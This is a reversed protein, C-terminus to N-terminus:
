KSSNNPSAIILQKLTNIKLLEENLNARLDSLEDEEVLSDVISPNDEVIEALHTRLQETTELLMITQVSMPVIDRLKGIIAHRFFNDMRFKLEDIKDELTLYSENINKIIEENNEVINNKDPVKTKDTHNVGNNNKTDTNDPKKHIEKNYITTNQTSDISNNNKSNINPDEKENVDNEVRIVTDYAIPNTEKDLDFFEKIKKDENPDNNNIYGLKKMKNRTRLYIYEEVAIHYKLDNTFPYRMIDINRMLLTKCENAKEKIFNNVFQSMTVLHVPYSKFVVELTDYSLKCLLMEAENLFEHIPTRLKEIQPILLDLFSHTSINGKFADGFLKQIRESIYSNDYNDSVKFDAHSEALLFTDYMTIIKYGGETFNKDTEPTYRGHTLSDFVTCFKNVMKNIMLKKYKKDNPIGPGIRKLEDEIGHSKNNLNNLINPINKKIEHYFTKSLKGLLHPTGCHDPMKSYVSHNEFYEKERKFSEQISINEVRLEKQTRNRVAMFGLNLKVQQGLLAEKASTGENMLDLKTLVGLTRKGMPDIKKVYRLIESTTIDVGSALVCLIITEPKECYRKTIGWTIQDIDEPQDSGELPNNVIGPLDIVTLDPCLPSFVSVVIPRNVINKKTGAKIDTQELIISKLKEFDDVRYDEEKTDSAKSIVKIVAYQEKKTTSLRLEIPTRTCLGDSRPLIDLGILGELVSSKGSSQIGVVAISPLACYQEIGGDKLLNILNMSEKMLQNLPRQDDDMLSQVKDEM